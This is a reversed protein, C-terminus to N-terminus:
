EKKSREEKPREDLLRNMEAMWRRSEQVQYTVQQEFVKWLNNINNEDEALRDEAAAFAQAIQQNRKQQEGWQHEWRLLEKRWRKENEEQWQELQRKQREEGLRQLESLQTQERRMQEQFREINAVTQRDERFSDTFERMRISFEDMKKGSVEMTESWEAMDRKRKESELLQTDVFERQETRLQSVLSKLEGTDREQRQIADEDRQLRSSYQELRKLTEVSEQQLRAIRKNSQQHGDELFTLTRMRAETDKTMAGVEQRLNLLLDSVRRQEAKHLSAEEDLRALRQLEKRIENIKRSANDREISRLREEERAEQQRREDAQDLMQVVEGKLQQLAGELQAFRLLQSQLASMRGEIDQIVRAQDQLEIEQSHVLQQLRILEAKDRRHEEDLWTTMQNLQSLDMSM